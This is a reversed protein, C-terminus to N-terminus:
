IGGLKRVHSVYCQMVIRKLFSAAILPMKPQVVAGLLTTQVNAHHLGLPM